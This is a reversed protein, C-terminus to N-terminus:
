QFQLYFNCKVGAIGKFPSLSHLFVCMVSGMFHISVSKLLVNEKSKKRLLLCALMASFASSPIYTGALWFVDFMHELPTNKSHLVCSSISLLIASTFWSLTWRFSRFADNICHSSAASVSFTESMESLLDRLFFTLMYIIVRIQSWAWQKNKFLSSKKRKLSSLITVSACSSLPSGQAGRRISSFLLFSCLIWFITLLTIIGRHNVVRQSLSKSNAVTQYFISVHTKRHKQCSSCNVRCCSSLSCSIESTQHKKGIKGCNSSKHGKRFCNQLIKWRKEASLGGASSPGPCSSGSCSWRRLDAGGPLLSNMIKGRSNVKKLQCKGGWISRSSAWNSSCSFLLTISSTPPRTVSSLTVSGLIWMCRTMRKQYFFWSNLFASSFRSSNEFVM